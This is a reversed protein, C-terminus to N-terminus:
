KVNEALQKTLTAVKTKEVVLQQVLDAVVEQYNAMVDEINLQLDDM